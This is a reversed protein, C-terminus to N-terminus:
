AAREQAGIADLRRWSEDYATLDGPTQTLFQIIHPAVSLGHDARPNSGPVYAGVEVLEQVEAAAALAERTAAALAIKTPDLVKTALRSLSALPDIAPYRNRVALARDLVLHGDLIGRVADAIPDNHDDGDVLITYMGTITGTARPGSRELMKPLMSFVSPTYGRATPPEDAALGVDRQAMALRTVSDMMLLVDLGDDAFSEAIRTALRAARLRLLPPQDSTAVVVVTRTMGEEGLEDEIFERVERGREGILAVVNVDASTGRAVMGLLTSKGVGSGGFIGIRQGRGVTCLTDVLRIGTAIPQDIRRRELAPPIPGDIGVSPATIPGSRDLPHGMADIVRGLLTRGVPVGPSNNLRRVRDGRGLGDTEGLILATAGEPSIAVVEGVRVGESGQIELHDGLRLRLGRVEVEHGSVRAVSGEIHFTAIDRM